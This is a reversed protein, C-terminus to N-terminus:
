FEKKEGNNNYRDWYHIWSMIMAKARRPIDEESMASFYGNTTPIFCSIMGNSERHIKIEFDISITKSEDYEERM